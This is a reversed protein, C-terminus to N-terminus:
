FYVRFLFYFLLFLPFYFSSLFSISALFLLHFLRIYFPSFIPIYQRRGNSKGVVGVVVVPIDDGSLCWWLGVGEVGGDGCRVKMTMIM